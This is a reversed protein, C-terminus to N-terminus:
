VISGARTDPPGSFRNLSRGATQSQSLLSNTPGRGRDM